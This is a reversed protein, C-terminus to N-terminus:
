PEDTLAPARSVSPALMQRVLDPSASALYDELLEPFSVNLRKLPAEGPHPHRSRNVVTPEPQVPSQPLDA